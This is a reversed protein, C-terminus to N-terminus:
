WNSERGFISPLLDRYFDIFPSQIDLLGFLGDVLFAVALIILVIRILKRM